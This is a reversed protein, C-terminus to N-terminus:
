TIICPLVAVCRGSGPPAGSCALPFTEGTALDVEEVVCHRYRNSVSLCESNSACTRCAEGEAGISCIKGETLRDLRPCSSPCEDCSPCQKCRDKGNNKNGKKGKKKAEASPVGRSGVFAGVGMTALARLVGRRPSPGVDRTLAGLLAPM